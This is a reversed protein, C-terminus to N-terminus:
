HIFYCILHLYNSSGLLFSFLLILLPLPISFFFLLSLCIFVKSSALYNRIMSPTTADDFFHADGAITRGRYIGLGSLDVGERLFNEM